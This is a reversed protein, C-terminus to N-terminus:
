GHRFTISIRPGASAVKLVAHEWTRQLTGGTVLLDGHGLDVALSRGGGYPRLRLTRPHGLSVIGVVPDVVEAPIRDRHWAVSDRGDRYLNLGGTAFPRQYRETLAELMRGIVPVVPEGSSLKWSARLRPEDVVNDYMRRTHAKWPMTTLLTDFLDDAVPLPVWGPVVDYWAGDDLHRRVVGAFDGSFGTAEGVALLSPQWVLDAM